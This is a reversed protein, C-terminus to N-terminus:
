RVLEALGDLVRTMNTRHEDLRRDIVRAELDPRSEIIPTLGSPGPGLHVVFRLRVSGAIPELEFRWRAGPNDPDSTVWGFVRHHDVETVFCPIEWRGRAPHTNRGTFRAGVAPATGDAPRDDEHWTAGLFEDSFRAPLSVDTVLEWV